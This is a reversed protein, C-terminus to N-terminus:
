DDDKSGKEGPFRNGALAGLEAITASRMRFPNRVVAYVSDFPRAFIETRGWAVLALSDPGTVPRREPTARFSGDSRRGTDLFYAECASLANNGGNTDVAVIPVGKEYAENVMRRYEGNRFLPHERPRLPSAGFEVAYEPRGDVALVAFTIAALAALLPVVARVPPVWDRKLIARLADAAALALILFVPGLVACFYRNIFDEAPVLPSM